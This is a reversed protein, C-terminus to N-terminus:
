SGLSQTDLQRQVYKALLDTELNVQSGAALGGLTTQELTHPILAVSFTTDTVDVLTLSVGDVAISGKSAMQRMLPPAAEFVIDSWEMEDRRRVVTGLGDIHGTVLHGGLRDGLALSRECNVFDGPVLKGLTTRSLTEEGAQFSMSDDTLDIVTLCCGQTAISDGISLDTFGGPRVLTLRVGVGEREIGAVKTKAEVLGSFM